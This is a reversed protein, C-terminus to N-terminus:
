TASATDSTEAQQRPVQEVPQFLHEKLCYRYGEV